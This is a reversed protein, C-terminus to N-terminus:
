LKIALTLSPISKLSNPKFSQLVNKNRLLIEAKRKNKGGAIFCPISALAIISGAGALGLGALSNSYVDNNIQNIAIGTLILGGGLM